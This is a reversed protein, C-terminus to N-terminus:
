ITRCSQPKREQVMQTAKKHIILNQTGSDPLWVMVLVRFAASATQDSSYAGNKLALVPRRNCFSCSKIRTKFLRGFDDRFKQILRADM